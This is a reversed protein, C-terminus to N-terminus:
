NSFVVFAVWHWLFCLRLTANWNCVRVKHQLQRPSIYAALGGCVNAPLSAITAINGPYFHSCFNALIEQAKPHRQTKLICKSSSVVIYAVADFIKLNCTDTTNVLKRIPREIEAVNNDDGDDDPDVHSHM